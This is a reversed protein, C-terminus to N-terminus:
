GGALLRRAFEIITDRNKLVDEQSLAVFHHPDIGHETSLMGSDFMPCASFRVTWGNPLSSTMPMGGGGGTRDGVVAVRPLTKMYKVFENAASYVKRNTLVCVPKHWRLRSSPELWQEAPQSFDNHGPGTKHSMYGVLTNKEVFRGALREATTLNGGSNNRVDVILARCLMLHALVEDLNGEGIGDAFSGCYVYGINDDLIRYKLGAAIRYDTGLYRRQLTDSFNAPFDEYWSWYRGMDAAAYLNVHGDRLEALMDAMVEFLQSSTIQGSVRARYKQYVADWDLGYSQKKYEFFCYREDMITWLADFNGTRSDDFDETDVCSHLAFASLLMALFLLITNFRTM